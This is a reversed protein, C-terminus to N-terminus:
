GGAGVGIELRRVSLLDTETEEGAASTALVRQGRGRFAVGEWDVWDTRRGIRTSPEQATHSGEYLVPLHVNADQGDSDELRAPVWLLDIRHSPPDIELSRVQELPLWLYRGAAYVELVPGLLEDHDGVDDFPVGNLSGALAPQVKRARELAAEAVGADGTRLAELADLRAKVYEPCGPALLPQLGEAFVNRRELESALLSRYTVTGMAMAPDLRELADLQRSARELEGGFCLLVVLEYRADQDTPRSKVVQTQAQIAEGLRGGEFLQQVDM